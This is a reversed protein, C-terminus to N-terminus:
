DDDTSDDIRRGGGGGGVNNVLVDIGGHVRVAEGVLAAAQDPDTVNAVVTTVSAAKGLGATAAQLDAASRASLVLHCGEEAFCAATALGIGRSAGTIVVVRGALKLDM